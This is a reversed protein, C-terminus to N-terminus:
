LHEIAKDRHLRMTLMELTIRDRLTILLLMGDHRQKPTLETSCAVVLMRQKYIERTRLYECETFFYAYM